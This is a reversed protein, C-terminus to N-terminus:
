QLSVDVEKNVLDITTCGQKQEKPTHYALYCEHSNTKFEPANFGMADCLFKNVNAKIFSAYRASVLHNDM